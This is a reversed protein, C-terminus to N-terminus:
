APGYLYLYIICKLLYNCLLALLDTVNQRKCTLLPELLDRDNTSPPFTTMPQGRRHLDNTMNGDLNGLLGRTKGSFTRPVKIEFSILSDDGLIHIIKASLVIGSKFFAATLKKDEKLLMVEETSNFWPKGYHLKNTVNM